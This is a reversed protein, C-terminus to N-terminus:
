GLTNWSPYIEIGVYELQIKDPNPNHSKIGSEVNNWNYPPPQFQIM